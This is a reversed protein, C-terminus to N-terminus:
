STTCGRGGAHAARRARGLRVAARREAGTPHHLLTVLTGPAWGSRSRPRDAARHGQGRGPHELARPRAHDRSGPRRGHRAHRGRGDCGRDALLEAVSTAQHFGLEDIVVVRGEPRSARRRARRRVDVIGDAEDAPAWYPRAPEAGPPSSSSTRTNPSCRPRMPRSGTAAHRRGLRRCAHVQNRVLDGFEARSPVSAALRVQGGPQDVADFVTSTTATSPPPSRPRCGARSRCRRRGGRRGAAVPGPDPRM